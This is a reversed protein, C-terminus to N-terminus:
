TPQLWVDGDKPNSPASDSVVIKQNILIWEGDRYEELRHTGTIYVHDGTAPSPYLADRAATDAVKPIAESIPALRIWDGDVVTQFQASTGTGVVCTVGDQTPPDGFYADRAADDAFNLFAAVFEWSTGDSPRLTGTTSDYWLRVYGSASPASGQDLVTELRAFQVGAAESDDVQLVHGDTSGAAVAVPNTGDHAVIEGKADQLNVYRNAQDVTSADLVHEITAASSHSVAATDDYGREVSSLTTGSRSNVLVKEEDALGRNIVAVFPNTADPWGSADDIDFTTAVNTLSGVVTTPPAGGVFQKREYTGTM